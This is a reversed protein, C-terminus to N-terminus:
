GQAKKIVSLKGDSELSMEKVGALNEIGQERLKAMVETKSIFEKRMNRQQLKGAKILIIPPAEVIKRFWELKYSALDIIYNWFVLTSILLTGDAITKADASMANQSADAIIVVFLFDSVGVNGIDRRM